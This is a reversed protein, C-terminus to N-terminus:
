CNMFWHIHQLGEDDYITVTATARSVTVAPDSTTLVLTFTQDCSERQQDDVITVTLCPPSGTTFTADESTPLYDEVM